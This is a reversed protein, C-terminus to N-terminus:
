LEGIKECTEAYLLKDEDNEFNIEPPTEWDNFPTAKTTSRDLSLLTLLATFRRIIPKQTFGLKRTLQKWRWEFQLAAQWNPFGSVYCVRQWNKGQKVKITTMRAGGKIEGNHQRLRRNLDITSGVYSANDTCILLYVYFVMHM